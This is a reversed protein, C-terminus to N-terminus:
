YRGALPTPQTVAEALERTVTGIPIRTSEGVQAASHAMDPPKLDNLLRAISRLCAIGAEANDSRHPWSALRADIIADIAPRPQSLMDTVATPGEQHLTQALDAADHLDVTTINAIRRLLKYAAERARTGAHDPDLALLIEQPELAALIDRHNETIATGCLALAPPHRGDTTGALQVAIADLPGETLVIRDAPSRGAEGLGFLLRSKDYLATTTTNLYKPM